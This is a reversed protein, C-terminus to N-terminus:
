PRRSAGLHPELDAFAAEALPRDATKLLVKGNDYLSSEVASGGQLAKRVILIDKADV